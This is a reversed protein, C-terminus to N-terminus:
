ILRDANAPVIDEKFMLKIGDAIPQLLGFRGVRSPGYRVQIDGIVKRELWTLYAVALLVLGMVLAIKLVTAVLFDM